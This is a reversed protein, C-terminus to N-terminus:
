PRRPVAKRYQKVFRQADKEMDTHYAGKFSRSAVGRQVRVSVAFDQSNVLENFAITPSLDVPPNAAVEAPFVYETIVTTHTASRPIYTSIAVCTPMVDILMNPYVYIGFVSYDDMDDMTALLPLAENHTHSVATKGPALSVGFDTRDTQQTHGTGYVPVLDCLEPHVVGCHLCECYNEALIKWNAQVEDVSTHASKLSGLEFKELSRPDFCLNDFWEILTPANNDLCVFLFGQWEDVRVAQLSIGERDFSEKDHHIASVLKGELSYSWSHYPCTIAAGFGSGSQDCLQSGRHQCVNYFARLESARNRVVLINEDGVMCVLRDGIKNLKDARGVYCWHKSYIEAMETTFVDASTYEERSFSQRLGQIDNSTM